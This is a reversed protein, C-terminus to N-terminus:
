ATKVEPTRLGKSFSGARNDYTAFSPRDRAPWVMRRNRWSGSFCCRSGGAGRGRVNGDAGGCKM